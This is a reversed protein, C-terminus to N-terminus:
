YKRFGLKPLMERLCQRRLNIGYKSNFAKTNGCRQCVGVGHKREKRKNHKLVKAYVWKKHEIQKAFKTWDGAM